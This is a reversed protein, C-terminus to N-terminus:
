KMHNFLKSEYQESYKVYKIRIIFISINEVPDYVCLTELSIWKSYITFESIRTEETKRKPM